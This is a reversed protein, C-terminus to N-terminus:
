FDILNYMRQLKEIIQRALHENQPHGDCIDLEDLFAGFCTEERDAWQEKTLAM